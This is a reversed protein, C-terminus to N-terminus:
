WSCAASRGLPGAHAILVQSVARNAVGLLCTGLGALFTHPQMGHRLFPGTSQGPLCVELCSLLWASMNQAQSIAGYAIRLLCAPPGDFCGCVQGRLSSFCGWPMFDCHALGSTPWGLTAVCASLYSFPRALGGHYLQVAVAM